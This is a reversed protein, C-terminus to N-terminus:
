RKVYASDNKIRRARPPALGNGRCTADGGCKAVRITREGHRHMPDRHMPLPCSGRGLGPEASGIREGVWPVASGIRGGVWNRRGGEEDEERRPAGTKFRENSLTKCDPQCPRVDHESRRVCVGFASPSGSRSQTGWCKGASHRHTTLKAVEGSVQAPASPGPRIAMNDDKPRAAALPPCDDAANPKQENPGYPKMVAACSCEFLRPAQTPLLDCTKNLNNLKARVVYIQGSKIRKQEKDKELKRTKEAQPKHMIEEGDEIIPALEEAHCGALGEARLRQKEEFSLGRENCEVKPSRSRLRRSSRRLRRSRPSCSLRSSQIIAAKSLKEEKRNTRTAM